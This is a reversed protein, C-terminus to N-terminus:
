VENLKIETSVVEPGARFYERVTGHERSESRTCQRVVRDGRANGVFEAAPGAPSQLSVLSDNMDRRTQENKSRAKRTGFRRASSGGGFNMGYGSGSSGCGSSGRPKAPGSTM